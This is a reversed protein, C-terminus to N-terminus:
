KRKSPLLHAHQFCGRKNVAYSSNRLESSLNGMELAQVHRARIMHLDRAGRTEYVADFNM